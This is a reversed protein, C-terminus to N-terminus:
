KEGCVRLLGLNVRIQLNQHLGCCMLIYGHKFTDDEM